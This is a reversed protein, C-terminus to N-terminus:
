AVPGPDLAALVRGVSRTVHGGLAVLGLVIITYTCITFLFLLLQIRDHFNVLTVGLTMLALEVAGAAYIAGRYVREGREMRDLVGTRIADLDHDTM